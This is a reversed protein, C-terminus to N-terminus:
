DVDVESQEVVAQQKSDLKDRDVRSLVKSFLSPCQRYLDMIEATLEPDDHKFANRLVLRITEQFNIKM